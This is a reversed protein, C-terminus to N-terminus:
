FTLGFNQYIDQCNNEPSLVQESLQYTYLIMPLEEEMAMLAKKLGQSGFQPIIAYAQSGGEHQRQVTYKILYKLWLYILYTQEDSELGLDKTVEGFGGLELVQADPVETIDVVMKGVLLLQKMTNINFLSSPKPNNSETDPSTLNFLYQYNKSKEDFDNFLKVNLFRKTMVENSKIRFM